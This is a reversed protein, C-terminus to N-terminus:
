NAVCEHRTLELFSEEFPTAVFDFEKRLRSIDVTPFLLTPADNEFRTKAGLYRELLGAIQRNSVPRGSAVNYLRSQGSLAIAELAECVDEIDVFDRQTEASTLFKVAGSKKAEVIISPLFNEPSAGAGLVNSLRAVRCTKSPHALCLAEGALKTLNYVYGPEVPRVVLDTDESGDRAGQYVRTSSLYLFSSFKYSELVDILTGVHARATEMLKERFDATLGICYVAHGLDTGTTPFNGRQIADVKHGKRELRKLLHAGIFGSAGFITFNTM